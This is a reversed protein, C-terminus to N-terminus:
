RSLQSGVRFGSWLVASLSGDFGSLGGMGPQGMGAAEGVAYLGEIPAGGEETVRGQDDVALGGFTKQARAGPRFFCLSGEFDPFSSGSRGWADSDEEGLSELDVLSAGLGEADIGLSTAMSAADEDCFFAEGFSAEVVGWNERSLSSELAVRPAVAWVPAHTRFLTSITVSTIYREDVFREGSNNVWIWPLGGETQPIDVAVGADGVVGLTQRFWGVAELYATAWNESLAWGLAHGTGGGDIAAEWPADEDVVQALWDASSAFGGTAIVVSDADIREGAVVVGAVKGDEVLVSEVWSGTQVEVSGPLAQLLVEVFPVGQDSVSHLRQVGSLPEAYISTFVLGGDLLWDHVGASEEFFLQARDTAEDGTLGPWDDVVQAVSDNVGLAQQSASEVFWLIPEIHRARGGLELGGELILAEEAAIATALGAVGGGIVVVSEVSGAGTDEAELIPASCAWFLLMWM